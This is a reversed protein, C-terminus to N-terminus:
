VSKPIRLYFESGRSLANVGVKGSHADIAMKCFPLGLGTGGERKHTRLDVQVYKDFIKDRYEEPVGPGSDRFYMNINEGDEELRLSVRGEAPSYKLSNSLFNAIVRGILRKDATVKLNGEKELHVKVGKDEATQSLRMLEKSALEGLDFCSKDLRLIGAEMKGLDLLDMVLDYMHRSGELATRAFERDLDSIDESNVVLDINSAIEMLPGKLDHVIMMILDNQLSLKDELSMETDSNNVKYM